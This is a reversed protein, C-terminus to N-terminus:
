NRALWGPAYREKEKGVSGGGESVCIRTQVFLHFHPLSRAAYHSLPSFPSSFLLLLLLRM